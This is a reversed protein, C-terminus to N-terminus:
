IVTTLRIVELVEQSRFRSSLQMIAQFGTTSFLGFLTYDLTTLFAAIIVPLRSNLSPIAM